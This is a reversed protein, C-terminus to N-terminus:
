RNAIEKTLEEIQEGTGTAVVDIWRQHEQEDRFPLDKEIDELMSNVKDVDVNDSFAYNKFFDNVKTAIM